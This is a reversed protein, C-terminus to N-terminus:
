KEQTLIRDNEREESKLSIDLNNRLVDANKREM